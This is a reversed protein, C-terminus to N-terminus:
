IPVEVTLGFFWLCYHTEMPFRAWSIGTRQRRHVIVRLLLPAVPAANAIAGHVNNAVRYHRAADDAGRTSTLIWCAFYLCAVTSCAMLRRLGFRFRRRSPATMAGAELLAKVSCGVVAAFERLMWPRSGDIM